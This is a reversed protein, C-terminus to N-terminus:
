VCALLLPCTRRNGGGVYSWSKGRNTSKQLGLSYQWSTWVGPSAKQSNFNNHATSLGVSTGRSATHQRLDAGGAASLRLSYVTGSKLSHRRKFPVFYFGPQSEAYPDYAQRRGINFLKNANYSASEIAIGNGSNSSGPGQELTIVLRGVGGRSQVFVWAGNVMHDNWPCFRHRLHTNANIPEANNASSSVSGIAAGGTWTGDDYQIQWKGQGIRSQTLAPPYRVITPFPLLENKGDLNKAPSWDGKPTKGGQSRLSTNMSVYNKEPDRHTNLWVICYPQGAILRGKNQFSLNTWTGGKKNVANYGKYECIVPRKAKKTVPDAATIQITYSGGDGNSYRM